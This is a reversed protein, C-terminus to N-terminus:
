SIYCMLDTYLNHRDENEMGKLSAVYSKVLTRMAYQANTEWEYQKLSAADTAFFATTSVQDLGSKHQRTGQSRYVSVIESAQEAITKKCADDVRIQESAENICADSVCNNVLFM